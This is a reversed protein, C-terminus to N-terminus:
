ASTCSSSSQSACTMVAGSPAFRAPLEIVVGHRRQAKGEDARAAPAGDGPVQYRAVVLRPPAKGEHGHAREFDCSASRRRRKCGAPAPAATAARQLLQRLADHGAGLRPRGQQRQGAVHDFDFRGCRVVRRPQGGKQLRLGHMAQLAHQSRGREGHRHAFQQQRQAQQQLRHHWCRSGRRSLLRTSGSGCSACSRSSTALKQSWRIAGKRRWASKSSASNKVWRSSRAPAPSRSKRRRGARSRACSRGAPRCRAASRRRGAPSPRRAAPVRHPAAGAQGGAQLLLLQRQARGAGHKGIGKGSPNRHFRMAMKMSSSAAATRQRAWACAGAGWVGIGPWIRTVPVTASSAALAATSARRRSSYPASRTTSWIAM